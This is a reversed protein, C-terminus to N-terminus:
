DLYIAIASSLHPTSELQFGLRPMLKLNKENSEPLYYLNTQYDLRFQHDLCSVRM